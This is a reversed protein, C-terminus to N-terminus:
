RVKSIANQGTNKNMLAFAIESVEHLTWLKAAQLDIGYM